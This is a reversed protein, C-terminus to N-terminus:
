PIEEGSIFPEIDADKTPLAGNSEAQFMQVASVVIRQDAIAAKDNASDTVTAFRPIAIAALIGM